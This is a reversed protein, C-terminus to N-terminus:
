DTRSQHQRLEAGGLALVAAVTLLSAAPPPSAHVEFGALTRGFTSVMALLAGALAPAVTTVTGNQRLWLRLLDAAAVVAAASAMAMLLWAGRSYIWETDALHAVVDFLLGAVAFGVGVRGFLGSLVPRDWGTASRRNTDPPAPIPEFLSAAVGSVQRATAGGTNLARTAIGRPVYTAVLAAASVAALAMFTHHYRDAAVGGWVSVVMGVATLWLASEERVAPVLAFGALGLALVGWHWANALRDLNRTAEESAIRRTGFDRADALAQSDGDFVAVTKKVALEVEEGPNELTWSVADDITRRYWAAEDAIDPTYPTGTFCRAYNAETIDDNSVAADPGRAHCLFAANSTASPTWVGVQVGNRITWPALAVAGGLLLAPGLQWRIRRARWAPSLVWWAIPIM